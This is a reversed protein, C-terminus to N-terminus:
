AALTLHILFIPENRSDEKRKVVKDNVELAAVPEFLLTKNKFFNNRHIDTVGIDTTKAVLITGPKHCFFVV